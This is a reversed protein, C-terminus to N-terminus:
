RHATKMFLIVPGGTGRGGGGAWAINKENDDLAVRGEAVRVRWKGFSSM